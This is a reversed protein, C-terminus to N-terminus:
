VDSSNDAGKLVVFSLVRCCLVVYRLVVSGIVVRSLGVCRLVHILLVVGRIVVFSSVVCRLDVCMLACSLVCFSLLVCRDCGM